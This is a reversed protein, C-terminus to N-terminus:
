LVLARLGADADLVKRQSWHQAEANRELLTDTESSALAPM